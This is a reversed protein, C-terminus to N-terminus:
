PKISFEEPCIKCDTLPNPTISSDDSLSLFDRALLFIWQLMLTSNLPFPLLVISEEAPGYSSVATNHIASFEFRGLQKTSWLLPERTIDVHGDDM